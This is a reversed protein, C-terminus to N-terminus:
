GPQPPFSRLLHLHGSHDVVQPGSYNPVSLDVNEPRRLKGQTFHFDVEVNLSTRIIPEIVEDANKDCFTIRYPM